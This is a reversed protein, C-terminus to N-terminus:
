ARGVVVGDAVGDVRVVAVTGRWGWVEAKGGRVAGDALAADGGGGRGRRADARGAEPGRDRGGRGAKTSGVPGFQGCATCVGVGSPRVSLGQRGGGARAHTAGRTQRVKEDCTPRRM